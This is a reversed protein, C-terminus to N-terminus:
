IEKNLKAETAQHNAKLQELYHSQSEGSQNM